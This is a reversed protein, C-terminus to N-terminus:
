LVEMLKELQIGRSAKVLITNGTLNMEGLAFKAEDADKFTTTNKSTTLLCFIEGVLIVLEFNKSLVLDYIKKHESLSTSGLERMDGLIVIKNDFPSEAFNEIAVQMSSLNANYADMVICNKGSDHWQSRNNLPQYASLGAEIKEPDVGFYKGVSAAAMMNTFNYSGILNSQVPINKDEFILEISLLPFNSLIRGKLLSGKSQGYTFTEIGQSKEVLLDDDANVFVKGNNTRIFNYLETKAKIVGDFGGFGELHAKGINTIIGYEPRSIECLAAIEGQHNAGMEIVAIETEDTISLISLPVGLHNNLNGSTAFTKFKQTLVSRILEKTTTKGNSGTIGLIPIELNKRHYAALQQLAILTDEVLIIHDNKSLEANNTLAYAAGKELAATVFENGDFHEGQIAFFLSGTTINRSDTSILNHKKYIEYIQPITCRM